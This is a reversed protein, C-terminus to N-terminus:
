FKNWYDFRYTKVSNTQRSAPCGAELFSPTPKNVTVNESTRQMDSLAGNTIVMEM